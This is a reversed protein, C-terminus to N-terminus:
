WGKKLTELAKNLAGQIFKDKRLSNPLKNGQETLLEGSKFDYFYKTNGVKLHINVLGSGGRELDLSLKKYGKTSYNNLFRLNDMGTGGFFQLDLKLLLKKGTGKSSKAKKKTLNEAKDLLKKKNKEVLSVAKKYAKGNGFITILYKKGKTTMKAIQRLVAGSGGPIGPLSVAIGDLLVAVVNTFSPNGIFAKISGALMVLDFATEVFNGTPDINNVPDGEAYLYKNKSLPEDDQGDDTDPVIFRSTTPDYDRWTMLYMNTDKDYQVGYRGVYRYINLEAAGSTTDKSITVNGWPDYEYRAVISGASNTLAIVDGRNNFQYYYNVENMSFGLLNGTDDSFYNLTNGNSIIEKVVTNGDYEFSFSTSGVVKEIRRGNADYRYSITQTPSTYTSLRNDSTYTYATQSTGATAKSLNGNADYEYNSASGLAPQMSILQNDTNFEFSKVTNNGDLIKTLNGNDDFQYSYTKGSYKATLLQGSLTYTYHYQNKIIGNSDKEDM